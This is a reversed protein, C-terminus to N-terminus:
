VFFLRRKRRCFFYNFEWRADKESSVKLECTVEERKGGDLDVSPDVPNM